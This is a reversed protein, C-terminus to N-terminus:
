WICCTVPDWRQKKPDVTHGFAKLGMDNSSVNDGTFWDSKDYIGYYDVTQVLIKGINAGINHGQFPTFTLQNGYLQWQQPAEPLADIYHGTVSLFPKGTDSTWPTLLSHYRVPFKRYSQILVFDLLIM